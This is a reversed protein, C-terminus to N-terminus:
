AQISLRIYDFGDMHMVSEPLEQMSQNAATGAKAYRLHAHIEKVSGM